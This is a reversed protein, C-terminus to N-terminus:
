FLRMRIGFVKLNIRNPLISAGYLMFCLIGGLLKKNIGILSRANKRNNSLITTFIFVVVKKRLKATICEKEFESLKENKLEQRLDNMFAEANAIRVRLRANNEANRNYNVCRKESYAVIKNEHAVRAWMDLDQGIREGPKFGGAAIIASRRIVTASTWVFDYGQKLSEWYSVTGYKGTAEPNSFNIKGDAMLVNYGTVFIDAQPYNKIIKVIESLYDPNWSDDADLFAIYEGNANWVGTNRAVSVGQNDQKILRVRDNKISELRAVGDDVSGDDVVVIEFDQYTQALVSNVTDVIYSAKNYLPIVVSFTKMNSGISMM